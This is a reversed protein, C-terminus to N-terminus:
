LGENASAIISKVAEGIDGRGFVSSGAVLVDTGASVCRKATGADVGGDVEILFDLGAAEREKALRSVKPLMDEMFRQGGFGPEVTMVLVLDCLPLLETISEVPTKPKVSLGAKKGFSRILSLTEAAKDTAEAHITIVDAGSKVFSEIYREPETIMLHVDFVLDSHPRLSKIVPQGFSINPVFVGDMVDLHLWSAGAERALDLQKGASYFDLSLASPSLIVSRKKM